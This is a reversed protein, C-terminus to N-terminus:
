IPTFVRVKWRENSSRSARCLERAWGKGHVILTWPYHLSKKRKKSMRPGHQMSSSCYTRSFQWQSALVSHGALRRHDRFYFLPLFDRWTAPIAANAGHLDHLLSWSLGSNHQKASTMHMKQSCIKCTPFKGCTMRPSPSFVLCQRSRRLDRQVSKFATLTKSGLGTKLLISGTLNRTGSAEPASLQHREPPNRLTGSPEPSSAQHPEPPNQHHHNTLNRLTRARGCHPFSASAKLSNPM